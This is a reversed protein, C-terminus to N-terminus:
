RIQQGEHRPAIRDSTASEELVKVSAAIISPSYTQRHDAPGRGRRRAAPTAASMPPRPASAVYHDLMNKGVGFARLVTHESKAARNRSSVFIHM